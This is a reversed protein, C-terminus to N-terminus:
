QCQRTAAHSRTASACIYLAHHRICGLSFCTLLSVLSFASACIYLAHHRICGTLTPPPAPTPLRSAPPADPASVCTSTSLKSANSTCFYLYQCRLCNSCDDSLSRALSLSLSLSFTSSSIAPSM